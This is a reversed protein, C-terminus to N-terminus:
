GGWTRCAKATARRGRPSSTATATSASPAASATSPITRSRSCRWTRATARASSASGTATSGTSPASTTRPPSATRRTGSAGTATTSGSSTAATAGDLRPLQDGALRLGERRLVARARGVRRRLLEDPRRAPVRRRAGAREASAGPPRFLFAPIETGDFSTYTVDEPRVHPAARVARPAPAHLTDRRAPRQRPAARGAHRCGRLHRAARGDGDVAARGM